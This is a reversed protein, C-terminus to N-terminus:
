YWPVELVTAATTTDYTSSTHNTAPIMNHSCTTRVLIDRFIVFTEANVHIGLREKCEPCLPVNDFIWAVFTRRYRENRQVSLSPAAADGHGVGM